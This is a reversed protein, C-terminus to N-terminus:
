IGIGKAGSESTLSNAKLEQVFHYSRHFMVVNLEQNANNIFKAFLGHLPTDCVGQFCGCPYASTNPRIRYAGVYKRVNM